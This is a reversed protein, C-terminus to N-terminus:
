QSKAKKQANEVATTKHMVYTHIFYNIFLVTFTGFAVLGIYITTHDNYCKRPVGDDLEHHIYICALLNLIMQLIQARTIYISVSRPVRIRAARAAYYGYMVFHIASNIAAAQMGILPLNSSLYFSAVCTIFHHMWHLHIVPKNRLILFVTDGFEAVKSWGLLIFWFAIRRREFNPHTCLLAHFGGDYLQYLSIPVLVGAALLSFVCLLVNWAVLQTQLEFPRDKRYRNMLWKGVPICAVYAVGMYFCYHWHAMMWLGVEYAPFRTSAYATLPGYSPTWPHRRNWYDDYLLSVNTILEQTKGRM